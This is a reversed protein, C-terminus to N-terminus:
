AAPLAVALDRLATQIRVDDLPGDSTLRSVLRRPWLVEVGRISFAGGVLPWDADIFCLVGVVPLEDGVIARVVDVQKLVGNVVKTRDRGGVTLKEVRPRLLGGEVRLRPRGKFRKADIIFLGSPVVALHDINARSGPIRRDHLLRLRDSALENLRRGLTEEGIAGTNWAKTSQPDDGVALMLKALKPHQARIREERLRHRREFEQRASAGPTGADIVDEPELSDLHVVCRVTRTAREYVAETGAPLDAGCVRCSGAYRLQM